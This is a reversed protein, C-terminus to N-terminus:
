SEVISYFVRVNNYVRPELLKMKKKLNSTKKIINRKAIDQLSMPKKTQEKLYEKYFYEGDEDIVIYKGEEDEEIQFNYLDEIGYKEYNDQLEFFCNDIYDRLEKNNMFYEYKKKNERCDLEDIIMDYSEQMCFVYNYDEITLSKM